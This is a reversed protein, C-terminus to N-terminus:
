EHFFFFGHLVAIFNLIAHAFSILLLNPYYRYMISLGLGSFFAVPLMIGPTPYIIHLFTFLVTNAGIVVWWKSSLQRLKPFLFGRYAIEQLLSVPLFLFIFHAHQWWIINPDIALVDSLKLFIFAGVLTFLLYPIVAKRFTKNSLGMEQDSIKEKQIVGYMFLMAVCLVVMRWGIPVVGFVLLAIPLIFIFFIQYLVLEKDQNM